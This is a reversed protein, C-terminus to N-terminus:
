VIWLCCLWSVSSPMMGEVGVLLSGEEDQFEKMESGDEVGNLGFGKTLKLMIARYAKVVRRIV